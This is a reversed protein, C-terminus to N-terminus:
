GDSSGIVWELQIPSQYFHNAQGGSSGIMWELQIAHHAQCHPTAGVQRCHQCMIREVILRPIAGSGVRDEARCLQLLKAVEAPLPTSAVQHLIGFWGFRHVRKPM